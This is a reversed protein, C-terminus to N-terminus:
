LTLTVKAVGPPREPDIGKHLALHLAFLQGVVVSVLPAFEEPMDPFPFAVTGRDLSPGHNSVVVMEAQREALADMLESMSQLAKGQASFLLCPCGREISAIPGHLFDAGSYRTPLIQACQALKLATELATCLSLGRGMVACANMYRYREARAQIDGETRLVQEIWEPVKYIMAARQVDGAWLAALQHLVALATTYTKTAPVSREERARTCLVVDAVERIPAKATNTLACTMAGRERAAALFSIVDPSQGSQSIGMVLTERLDFEADYVTLLSMPTLSAVKGAIVGFAYRAYMAANDSTGRAVLLVQRIGDSRLRQAFERIRDTEAALTAAIAEPQQIIEQRMRHGPVTGYHM